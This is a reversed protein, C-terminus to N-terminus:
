FTYSVGATMSVQAKKQVLQSKGAEGILQSMSVATNLSWQPSLQYNLGAALGVSKLGAKATYAKFGSRAAQEPTVGFYSQNYRADAWTVSPAVFGSLTPTIDFPIESGLELKVGGHGNISNKAADLKGNGSGKTLTFGLPLGLLVHGTIGVETAAKIEGMGLLRKSGPRLLSGDKKDTRGGDGQLLVGLSFADSEIFTWSLGRAKGGAALTGWGDTKYSISLDPVAGTVSEKAGEYAPARAVGLGASVTWPSAAVAPKAPTAATQAQASGCAIAGVVAAGLAVWTAAYGSSTKLPQSTATSGSSTLSTHVFFTRQLSVQLKHVAQGKHRLHLKTM